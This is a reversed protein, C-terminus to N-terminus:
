QLTKDKKDYDKKDGTLSEDRSLEEQYPITGYWVM